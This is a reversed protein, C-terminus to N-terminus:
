HASPNAMDADPLILLEFAGRPEVPDIAVITRVTGGALSLPMSSIAVTRTGAVAVRAQYLGGPVNFYGSGVGFPVERLIPTSSGLASYPATAYVDVAPAGAAAHVVRFRVQGQAATSDDGTGRLQLPNAGGSVKGMAYFTYWSGAQLTISDTLVTQGTGAVQVAITHTGAPLATYATFGKSPLAEFVVNGNVAVDVNPADASAHVVRVWSSGTQANVTLSLAAAALLTRLTKM